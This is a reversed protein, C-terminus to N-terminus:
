VLNAATSLGLGVFLLALGAYRWALHKEAAERVRERTLEDLDTRTKQIEARVDSEIRTTREDLSELRSDHEEVVGRLHVLREEVSANEPFGRVVDAQMTAKASVTGSMVVTRGAKARRFLASLWRRSWAVGEHLESSLWERAGRILPFLEPAAILAVGLCEYSGGLVYLWSKLSGDLGIEFPLVAIAAGLALGLLLRATFAGGM